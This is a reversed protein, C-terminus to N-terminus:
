SNTLFSTAVLRYIAYIANTEARDKLTLYGSMMVFCVPASILSYHTQVAAHNLPTSLGLLTLLFGGWLVCHLLRRRAGTREPGPGLARHPPRNVEKSSLFHLPRLTLSVSETETQSALNNHEQNRMRERKCETGYWSAVVHAKHWLFTLFLCPFPPLGRQAPVHRLLFLFVVGHIVSLFWPVCVMQLNGCSSREEKTIGGVVFCTSFLLWVSPFVFAPHRSSPFFVLNDEAFAGQKSSQGAFCSPTPFFLFFDCSLFRVGM